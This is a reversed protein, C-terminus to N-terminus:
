GVQMVGGPFCVSSQVQSAAPVVSRSQLVSRTVAAKAGIHCSRGVVVEPGVRAGDEIVADEDVLVPGVLKAEPSVRAGPHIFIRGEQRFRAFPDLHHLVTDGRLLSLNADLLREKTGVDCFYGTVDFAALRAGEDLLRPYGERNICSEGSKPLVDLVAPEFLHVGCFMREQVVPGKYVTRGAFSRIHGEEDTGLLGYREKEPADQLALTALPRREDHLAVMAEVDLDILADANLLLTPGDLAGLADRMGLAGGGTGLLVPEYSYVLDMGEYHTGLAQELAPHLHHTNLAVRRAGARRAHELAFHVLPTGLVEVLPKPRELTLPALRTGLGAALIMARTVM